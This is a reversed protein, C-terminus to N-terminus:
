SGINVAPVATQDPKTAQHMFPKEFLLYFVWAFPLSILVMAYPGVGAYTVILEHTLYLSYSFLGIGAFLKVVRGYWNHLKSELGVAYNVIIFFGIGFLPQVFFVTARAIAGSPPFSWGIICCIATILLVAVGASLMSFVKPLKILGYRAEISVAGLAWIFWTAVASETIPIPLGFAKILVFALAFWAVRM